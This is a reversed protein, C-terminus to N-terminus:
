LRKTEILKYIININIINVSIIINITSNNYFHRLVNFFCDVNAWNAPATSYVSQMEASPYSGGWWLTDQVQYYVTQYPPKPPIHLVGENGYCRFPDYRHNLYFQEVKLSLAFLHSTSFQITPFLVTEDNIYRFIHKCIMYEIYIYFCSKANFLWYQNM